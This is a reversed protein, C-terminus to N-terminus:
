SRMDMGECCKNRLQHDRIQSDRRRGLRLQFGPFLRKEDQFSCMEPRVRLPFLFRSQQDSAPAGPVLCCFVRGM